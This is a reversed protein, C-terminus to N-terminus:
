NIGLIKKFLKKRFYAIDDERLQSVYRGYDNTNREIPKMCDIYDIVEIKFFQDANAYAARSKEFDEPTIHFAGRVSEREIRGTVKISQLPWSRSNPGKWYAKKVSTLSDLDVHSMTTSVTYTEGYKSILASPDFAKLATKFHGDCGEKVHVIYQEM